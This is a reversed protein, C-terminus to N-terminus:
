LIDRVGGFYGDYTCNQDAGNFRASIGSTNAEIQSLTFTGVPASSSGPISCTWTGNSVRGLKGEQAYTGSFNCTGTQGNGTAFSVQFLPNFFNTHGISLGGFILIPGNNIGNGCKTGNATLGGLYHGGLNNGAWTQRILSKTVSVGNVTYSVAGSTPSTFAFAAVGVSQIAVGEWPMGFYTGMTSYLTGSFLNEGLPSAVSRAEPVVYWQPLGNPGYVFLTAFVIDNQQILNVGWGSEAPLYWLDTYDTSHTTAFAPLAAIALAALLNRAIRIM